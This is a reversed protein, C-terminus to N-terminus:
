PKRLRRYLLIGGVGGILVVIGVLLPITSDEKEDIAEAEEVSPAKSEGLLIEEYFDNKTGTPYVVKGEKIQIMGSPGGVPTLFDADEIEELFLLFEGGENQFEEVWGKDFMDIGAIIQETAEGRYVQKVNFTVGWFVFENLESESSFDYTGSVIVEAKENLEEPELEVWSTAVVETNVVGSLLITLMFIWISPRLNKLM